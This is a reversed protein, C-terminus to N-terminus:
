MAEVGPMSKPRVVNTSGNMSLRRFSYELVMIMRAILEKVVVQDFGVHGLTASEPITPNSNVLKFGLRSQVLQSAIKANLKKCKGKWHMNWPQAVQDKFM